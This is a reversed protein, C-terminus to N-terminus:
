EDSKRGEMKQIMELNNSIVLVEHMVEKVTSDEMAARYLARAAMRLRVIYENLNTM